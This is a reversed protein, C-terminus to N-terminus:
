KAICGLDAYLKGFLVVSIERLLQRDDINGPPAFSTSCNAL